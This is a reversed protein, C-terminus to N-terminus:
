LLHKIWKNVYRQQTNSVFIWEGKSPNNNRSVLNSLFDEM